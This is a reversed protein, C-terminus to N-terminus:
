KYDEIRHLNLAAAHFFIRSPLCIALHLDKDIM